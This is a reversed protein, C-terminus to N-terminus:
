AGDLGDDLAAALRGVDQAAWLLVQARGGILAGAIFPVWAVVTPVNSFIVANRLKRDGSAAYLYTSLYLVRVISYACALTLPGNLGGPVDHWADPILLGVV